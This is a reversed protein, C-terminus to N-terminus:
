VFWTSWKMWEDLGRVVLLLLVLLVLFGRMMSKLRATGRAKRTVSASEAGISSEVVNIALARSFRVSKMIFELAPVIM